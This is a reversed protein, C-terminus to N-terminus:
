CTGCTMCRGSTDFGPRQPDEAIYGGDYFADGMGPAGCDPCAAVPDSATVKSSSSSKTSKTSKTETSPM